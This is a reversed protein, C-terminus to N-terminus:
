MVAVLQRSFSVYRLLMLKRFPTLRDFPCPYDLEEPNDMAVWDKWAVENDEMSTLLNEFGNITSLKIVDQWSRDSLWQYPNDASANLIM